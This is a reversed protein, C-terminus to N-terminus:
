SISSTAMVEHGLPMPLTYSGKWGGSQNLVQPIQIYMVRCMVASVPQWAAAISCSQMVRCFTAEDGAIHDGEFSVDEFLVVCVIGTKLLIPAACFVESQLLSILVSV